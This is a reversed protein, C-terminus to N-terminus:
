RADPKSRAIRENFPERRRWNKALRQVRLTVPSPGRSSSSSTPSKLRSSRARLHRHRFRKMKSTPSTSTSWAWKTRGECSIRSARKLRKPSRGNKEAKSTLTSRSLVQDSPREWSRRTRANTRHKTSSFVLRVSITWSWIRSSLIEWTASKTTYSASSPWRVSQRCLVNKIAFDNAKQRTRWHIKWESQWKKRVFRLASCSLNPSAMWASTCTYKSNGKLYVIDRVCSKTFKEVPM